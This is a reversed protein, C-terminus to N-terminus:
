EAGARRMARIEDTLMARLGANPDGAPARGFQFDRFADPMKRYRSPDDEYDADVIVPVIFRRGLISLSREAAERWERFVYGEEARETNASIVPVFLRVTKRISTLVEPEWADGPTAPARRAV